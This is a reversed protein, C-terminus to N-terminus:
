ELADVREGQAAHRAGGGRPRAPGGRGHANGMGSGTAAALAHAAVEVGDDDMDGTGRVVSRGRDALLSDPRGALSRCRCGGPTPAPRNGIRGSTEQPRHRRHPTNRAAPRPVARAPSARAAAIWGDARVVRLTLIPSIATRRGDQALVHVVHEGLQKTHVVVCQM